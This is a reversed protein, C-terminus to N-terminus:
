TKEKIHDAIDAPPITSHKACVAYGCRPEIGIKEKSGCVCCAQPTHYYGYQDRWDKNM